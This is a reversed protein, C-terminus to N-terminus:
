RRLEKIGVVLSWIGLAFTLLAILLYFIDGSQSFFWLEIAALVLPFLSLAIMTRPVRTRTLEDFCWPRALAGEAKIRKGSGVAGLTGRALLIIALSFVVWAGSVILEGHSRVTMQHFEWLMAVGLIIASGCWLLGVKPDRYRPTFRNM